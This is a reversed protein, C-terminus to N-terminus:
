QLDAAVVRRYRFADTRVLAVLLEQFDYGSNRWAALVSQQTCVDERVATRGLGLELQQQVVCSTVKDSSALLTMLDAADSFAITPEGPTPESGALDSQALAGSTDVAFGNDDKGRVTGTPGFCEFAFGLTDVSSHCAACSPDALHADFSERVSRVQGNEDTDAVARAANPPPDGLPDCMLERKVFVGRTVPKTRADTANATLWAGRTLVGKRVRPDLEVRAFEDGFVGDIGYFTALPGNVYSHTGTLLAQMADPQNWVADDIFRHTEEVMAAGVANSFGADTKSISAVQPIRLWQDFFDHLAERADQTGLLRRAEAEVGDATALAGREAAAFLVPDPMSRTLTYALRSAIAYDDLLVVDGEKADASVSEIRYLFQPAQLMAELTMQLATDFDYTTRATEFFESYRAREDATLPRRFAKGGFSTVFTDGCGKADAAPDCTFLRARAASVARAAVDAAVAEFAEITSTSVGQMRAENDFGTPEATDAQLGARGPRSTDGFLARVTNDYEFRTLRRLPAPGPRIAGDNCLLATSTDPPLLSQPADGILGSCATTLGLLPAALRRFRM